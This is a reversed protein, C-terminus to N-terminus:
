RKLLWLVGAVVLLAAAIGLPLYTSLWLPTPDTLGM